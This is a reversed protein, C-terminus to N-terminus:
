NPDIIIFMPRVPCPFLSWHVGPLELYFLEYMCFCSIPVKTTRLDAVTAMDANVRRSLTALVEPATAEEEVVEAVVTVVMAAVTVM